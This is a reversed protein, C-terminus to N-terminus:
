KNYGTGLLYLEVYLFPTPVILMDTGLYRWVGV